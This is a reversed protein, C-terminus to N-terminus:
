LRSFVRCLARVRLWSLVGDAARVRRTFRWLKQARDYIRVDDIKGDLCGSVGQYVYAGVVANPPNLVTPAAGNSASNESVGNVYIDVDCGDQVLAVHTWAGTVVEVGSDLWEYLSAGKM